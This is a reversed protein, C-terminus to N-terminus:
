VTLCFPRQHIRRAWEKLKRVVRVHGVLTFQIKFQQDPGANFCEAFHLVFAGAFCLVLFYFGARYIWVTEAASIAAELEFLFGRLWRGCSDIRM